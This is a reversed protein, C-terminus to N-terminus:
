QELQNDWDPWALHRITNAHRELNSYRGDERRIVDCLETLAPHQLVHCTYTFVYVDAVSPSDGFLFPKDGLLTSAAQICEEFLQINEEETFRLQGQMMGLKYMHRKGFVMLLPYMVFNVLFWSCRSKKSLVRVFIKITDDFKYYYLFASMASRVTNEFMYTIATSIAKQGDDLSADLDAGLNSRVFKIILNSDPYERGNYEIFPNQGKSSKYKMDTDISKYPKNALRLYTELKFRFPSGRPEFPLKLEPGLVYITDKEFEKVLLERKKCKMKRIAFVVAGLAVGGIIVTKWSADCIRPKGHFVGAFGHL